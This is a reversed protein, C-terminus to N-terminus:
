LITFATTVHKVGHVKRAIEVATIAEINTVTGLLFVESNETHVKIHSSKIQNNYLLQSLVKTTIWIDSSMTNADVQNTLRIENYVERTGDLAMAIKQAYQSLTIDSTQGTLLVRGQYVTSVIHSCRQIQENQHLKHMIRFELTADDIQTGLTRPDSIAKTAVAASVIIGAMCGQLILVMIIIICKSLVQM